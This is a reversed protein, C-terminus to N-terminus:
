TCGLPHGNMVWLLVPKGQDAAERLGEAYSPYWRIQEWAREGEDPLIEARYAEYRQALPSSYLEVVQVQESGCAATGAAITLVALATRIARMGNERRAEADFDPEVLLTPKSVRSTCGLWLSGAPVGWPPM